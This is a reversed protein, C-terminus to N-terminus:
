WLQTLFPTMLAFRLDRTRKRFGVFARSPVELLCDRELLDKIPQVLASYLHLPDVHYREGQSFNVERSLRRCDQLSQRHPRM